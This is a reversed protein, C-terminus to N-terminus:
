PSPRTSLSSRGSHFPRDAKSAVTSARQGLGSQRNGALAAGDRDVAAAAHEQVPDVARRQQLHQGFRAGPLEVSEGAAEDRQLQEAVLRRDLAQGFQHRAQPASISALTDSRRQAGFQHVQEAPEVVSPAADDM